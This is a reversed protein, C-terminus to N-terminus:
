GRLYIRDVGLRHPSVSGPKTSIFATQVKGQKSIISM